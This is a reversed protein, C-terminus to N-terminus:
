AKESSEGKNVWTGDGHGTPVVVSAEKALVDALHAGVEGIKGTDDPIAMLMGLADTIGKRM